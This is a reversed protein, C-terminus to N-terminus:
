KVLLKATKIQFPTVKAAFDIFETPNMEKRAAKMLDFMATLILKAEAISKAEIKVKFEFASM